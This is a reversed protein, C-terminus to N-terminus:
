RRANRAERSRRLSSFGRQATHARLSQPPCRPTAATSVSRVDRAALSSAEVGKLRIVLQCTAGGGQDGNPRSNAAAHCRPSARPRPQASQMVRSPTTNARTTVQVAGCRVQKTLFM